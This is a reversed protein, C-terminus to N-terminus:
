NNVITHKCYLQEPVVKDTVTPVAPDVVVTVHLLPADTETESPTTLHGASTVTSQGAEGDEVLAGVLAGDLAGLLAPVLAGVLVGDLVGDLVGVSVGVLVGVLVGDLTGDLAGVALTISQFAPSVAPM